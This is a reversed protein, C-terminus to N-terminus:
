RKVVDGEKLDVGRQGNLFEVPISILGDNNDVPRLCNFHLHERTSQGTNGSLAIPQGMSVRDGLAVLSGHKVLHVYQCFIGSDPDYITIFNAYPRWENGKGGFEYTEVMGVVYGSTASCITDNTKLDFDIAYRSYDSNHTFNTNNGQLVQYEKNEVFPFQIKIPTIEKALDGLRSAFRIRGDFDQIGPIVLLTDKKPDLTIPNLENLLSQLRDNENFVWVRLPSQLPNSIQISLTDNRYTHSKGYDYQAYEKNPLKVSTCGGLFLLAIWIAKKLAPELKKM